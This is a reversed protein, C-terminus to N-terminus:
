FSIIDSFVVISEPSFNILGDKSYPRVGEHPGGWRKDASNILVESKNLEPFSLTLEEGSFNLLAAISGAASKKTLLIAKDGTEAAQVGARDYIKWVPHSKKLRIVEKYFDYLLKRNGTIDFGLRSEEFVGKSQPEPFEESNLFDPFEERRGKSVLMALEEDTHSTFYVFPSPENYEEGMFILPNFPSIFMAGALLKLMEFGVLTGIRDGMMRNGIHDHNQTFVVFKNGPIGATSSGFIKKRHDSWIGDYVWGNNFSKVLQRLGGFDAYYGKREGTVLAHLSHHFEDCWQKDLNYGGKAHPNIFKTDNLDIEGILTYNRGTIHELEDAKERLEKIIHKSGLDKIAHVADLRLGDIHFDRLWMLMNETYFNRVGDSWPGDFNIAKGWPTKYDETFYPGFENLYNGEPGLHNYVVDLVVALGAAHCADVLKLLSEAGGYSSQVAFPFVGDYGWNRSGPFQAIPMIEITNIGLDKLYEIKEAIGEFTGKESFTGTHLEYFINEGNLGKWNHDHWEFSTIDIAKSPGHVDQPQSLSAPDPFSEKGNIRVKYLDGQRITDNEVAWYGRDDKVCPLAIRDNVILEIKEAMPSWVVFLSGEATFNLGIIRRGINLM